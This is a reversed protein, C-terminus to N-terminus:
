GKWTLSDVLGSPCGFDEDKRSRALAIVIRDNKEGAPGTNNRRTADISRNQPIQPGAILLRSVYSFIDHM